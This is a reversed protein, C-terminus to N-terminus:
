YIERERERERERQNVLREVCLIPMYCFFLLYSVIMKLTAMDNMSGDQGYKLSKNVKKFFFFKKEIV